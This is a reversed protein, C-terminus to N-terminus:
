VYEFSVAKLNALSFPNGCSLGLNAREPIAKLEDLTYGFATAVDTHADAKHGNGAANIAYNGYRENVKAAIDTPAFDQQLSMTKCDGKGDLNLLILTCLRNLAHTFKTQSFYILLLLRNPSKGAALYKKTLRVEFRCGRVNFIALRPETM